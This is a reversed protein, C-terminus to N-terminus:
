LLIYFVQILFSFYIFPFEMPLLFLKIALIIMQTYSSVSNFSYFLIFIKTAGTSQFLPSRVGERDM